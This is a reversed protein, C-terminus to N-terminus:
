YVYNCNISLQLPNESEQMDLIANNKIHLYSIIKELYGEDDKSINYDNAFKRLINKSNKIDKLYIESNKCDFIGNKIEYFIIYSSIQLINLYYDRYPSYWGWNPNVVANYEAQRNNKYYDIFDYLWQRENKFKKYLELDTSVKQLNSDNMISGAHNLHYDSNYIQIYQLFVQLLGNTLENDYGLKKYENLAEKHRNLLEMNVFIGDIFDKAYGYGYSRALKGYKGNTSYNYMSLEFESFWSARIPENIDLITLGKKYFYSMPKYFPYLLINDMRLRFTKLFFSYYDGFVRAMVYYKNANKLHEPAHSVHIIYKSYVSFSFHLAFVVLLLILLKTYKKM